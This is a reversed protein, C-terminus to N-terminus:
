DPTHSTSAVVGRLAALLRRTQRPHKLRYYTQRGATEYRVLDATRLRALHTSVTQVSRGVSRALASPSLVGRESLATVIAFVVPNGLIRCIRSARYSTERM